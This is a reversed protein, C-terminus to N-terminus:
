THEVVESYINAFDNNIFWSSRGMDELHTYGKQLLFTRISMAKIPQEQEGIEVFIVGFAVETFDLSKLVELEGGEVDLSWFDFFNHTPVHDKLIQKLPLCPMPKTNELKIDGWYLKRFEPSAFEYIGGTAHNLVYHVTQSTSCVASNLTLL